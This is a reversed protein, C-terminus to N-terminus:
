HRVCNQYTSGTLEYMNMQNNITKEYYETPPGPTAMSSSIANRLQKAMVDEDVDSSADGSSDYTIYTLPITRPKTSYSPLSSGDEELM